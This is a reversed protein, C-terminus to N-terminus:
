LSSEEVLGLHYIFGQVAWHSIRLHMKKWCCSVLYSSFRRLLHNYSESRDQKFVRALKLFDSFTVIHNELPDDDKNANSITCM